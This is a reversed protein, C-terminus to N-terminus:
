KMTIDKRFPEVLGTIPKNSLLEQESFAGTGQRLDSSSIEEISQNHSM